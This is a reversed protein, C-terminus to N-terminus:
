SRIFLRNKQPIKIRITLCTTETFMIANVTQVFSIIPKSNLKKGQIAASLLAKYSELSMGNENSIEHYVTYKKGDIVCSLSGDDAETCQKYTIYHPYDHEADKYYYKEVFEHHNGNGDIYLYGSSGMLGSRDNALFYQHLNTKWGKGCGFANTKSSYQYNLDLADNERGALYDDYLHSISLSLGKNSIDIDSFKWKLKQTALNVSGIGFKGMSITEYAMENTELRASVFDVFIRPKYESVNIKETAVVLFDDDRKDAKSAREIVLEINSSGDVIKQIEDTIDIEIRNNYGNHRFKDLVKNGYKVVFGETHSQYNDTKTLELVAHTIKSDSHLLTRIYTAHLVAKLDWETNNNQIYGLAVTDSAPTSFVGNNSRCQMTIFSTTNGMIQPDIVVPFQRADSNIWAEDAIVRLTYSGASGELMYEVADSQENAMDYMYPAPILFKVENTAADYLEITKGNTRAELKGLDLKFLYEYAESKSNVIINEKLRNNEVLYELDCNNIINAFRVDSPERDKLAFKVAGHVLETIKSAASKPSRRLNRMAQIDRRITGVFHNLKSTVAAVPSMAIKYDDQILEVLKNQATSKALRVLFKNRRSEFVEEGDDNVADIFDDAAATEIGGNNDIPSSFLVATHLGTKPNTFQKSYETGAGIDEYCTVTEDNIANINANDIVNNINNNEMIIKERISNNNTSCARSTNVQTASQADPAQYNDETAACALAPDHQQIIDNPHQWEGDTGGSDTYDDDQESVIVESPHDNPSSGLEKEDAASLDNEGACDTDKKKSKKEVQKKAYVEIHDFAAQVIKRVTRKHLFPKLMTPILEYVQEVAIEMKEEGTKDDQEANAIAGTAAKHLKGRVYFYHGIFTILLSLATLALSVIVETSLIEM